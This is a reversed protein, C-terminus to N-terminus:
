VTPPLPPHETVEIDLKNAIAVLFGRAEDRFEAVLARQTVDERLDTIRKNMQDVTADHQKKMQEITLDRQQNMELCHRNDQEVLDLRSTLAVNASTLSNVASDALTVAVEAKRGKLFWYGGYLGGLGIIAALLWGAIQFSMPLGAATLV